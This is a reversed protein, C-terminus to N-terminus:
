RWESDGSDTGVKVEVVGGPSGKDIAATVRFWIKCLELVLPPPQLRDEGRICATQQCDGFTWRRCERASYCIGPAM